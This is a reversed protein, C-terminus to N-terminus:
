SMEEKAKETSKGARVFAESAKENPHDLCYDVFIDPIGAMAETEFLTTDQMGMVFIAGRVAAKETSCM